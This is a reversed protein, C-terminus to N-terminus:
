ENQEERRGDLPDGKFIRRLDVSRIRGVDDKNKGYPGVGRDYVKRVGIGGSSHSVRSVCSSLIIGAVQDQFM